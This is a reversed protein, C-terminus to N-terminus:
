TTTTVLSTSMQSERELAETNKTSINVIVPDGGEQPNGNVHDRRPPFAKYIYSKGLTNGNVHDRRPPFAKYIYSKGLTRVRRSTM